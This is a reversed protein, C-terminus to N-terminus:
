ERICSFFVITRGAFVSSAEHGALRILETRQYHCFSMADYMNLILAMHHQRPMFVIRVNHMNLSNITIPILKKLISSLYLSLPDGQRLGRIPKFSEAEETNFRVRYEVSSVCQM